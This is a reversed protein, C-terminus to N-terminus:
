NLKSQIFFHSKGAILVANSLWIFTNCLSVGNASGLDKIRFADQVSDYNLVAHQEEVTQCQLAM